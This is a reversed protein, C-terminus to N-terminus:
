FDRREVLKVALWILAAAGVLVGGFAVASSDGLSLSSRWIRAEPVLFLVAAVIGLSGYTQWLQDLVAALATSLAFGAGAVAVIALLYRALIPVPLAVRVAPALLWLGALGAVILALSAVAGVASRVLVLRRRSIPLSLTYLMAGEVSQGPRFSTRTNIGASALMVASLIFAFPLAGDLRRIWVAPPVVDDLLLAGIGLNLALLLVVRWRVEIWAPYWM